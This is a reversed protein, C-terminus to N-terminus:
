YVQIMVEAGQEQECRDCHRKRRLSSQQGGGWARGESTIDERGERGGTGGGVRDM